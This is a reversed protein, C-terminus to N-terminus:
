NRVVVASMRPLSISTGKGQEVKSARWKGSADVSSGAFTVGTKSDAAPASLRMLSVHRAFGVEALSLQRDNESRNILVVCNATGSKGLAYATVDQASDPIALQM